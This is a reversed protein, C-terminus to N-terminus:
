SVKKPKFKLQSDAAKLQPTLFSLLQQQFERVGEPNIEELYKYIDEKSMLQKGAYIRILKGFLNKARKGDTSGEISEVKPLRSDNNSYRQFIETEINKFPLLLINSHGTLYRQGDQDGDLVSIVHDNTSLFNHQANRKMLDVVQSGGGIYIIQFKFFIETGSSSILYRIYDELCEDETLIYRDSRNFGYMISKVFNYSRSNVTILSSEPEQEMYYLENVDLTKMLALSHTTFVINTKYQVCFERLVDVLNVQARADLSIDIEDIVILKKQQRIHKYLNVVFYEGSSFYDERIYYRDSDDKLIFYYATNNIIVQKLKTFREGDYVRHLFLILEEPSSYEGVAIKARLEEDIGSLRRFHSFREGHPIPLEVSIMAKLEDSIEQKSDVGKIFRNYTFEIDNELGELSYTIASEKNFIYPAATEQFTSNIVLNRIARILTTKGVSNKGTICTIKNQSLDFTVKQRKM